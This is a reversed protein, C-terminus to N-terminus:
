AWVSRLTGADSQGGDSDSHSNPTREASLHPLHSMDSTTPTPPGALGNTMPQAAYSPTTQSPGPTSGKADLTRSYTLHTLARAQTSSESPTQP